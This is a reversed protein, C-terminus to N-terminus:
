EGPVFGGIVAFHLMSPGLELLLLFFVVGL